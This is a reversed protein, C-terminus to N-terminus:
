YCDGASEVGFNREWNTFACCPQPSEGSGSFNSSPPPM